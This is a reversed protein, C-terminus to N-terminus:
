NFIFFINIDYGKSKFKMVRKEWLSSIRFTLLDYYTM